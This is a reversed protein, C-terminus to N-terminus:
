GPGMRYHLTLFHAGLVRIDHRARALGDEVWVAITENIPLRLPLWRNAFYVGQDGPVEGPHTTLLVGGPRGPLDEWRLVSVLSGGPLPFAINAYREGRLAHSSYAAVYLARGDARTRVWGRVDDRGDVDSRVAVLRSHLGEEGGQPFEMQQVRRGLASWVRRALSAGPAWTPTVSLKFALTDEYFARIGPHVGTAQFRPSTFAALDAVLGRPAPRAADVAGARELFTAGVPGKSRLRSFPLGPPPSRAAPRALTWGLLGCLTFGAANLSSHLLVMAPWPPTWQPVVSRLAYAAALAMGLVAAAGAVALLAAAPMRQRRAARLALIAAALGALAVLSGGLAELAPSALIGAATLPLGLIVAAIAFAFPRSRGRRLARGALGLMLPVAFSAYHFHIATLAVLGDPLGFLAGFRWAALWFAGNLLFVLAADIAVEEALPWPRSLFRVVAAAAALLAVAVWPLCLLGAATGQPLLLGAAALLASPAQMWALARFPWPDKRPGRRDPVIAAALGLPVTVLVAVLLARTIVGADDWALPAFAVLAGSVMAGFAAQLRLRGASDRRGAATPAAM